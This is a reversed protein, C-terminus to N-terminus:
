FEWEIIILDLGSGGSPIPISAHRAYSAASTSKAAPGITMELLTM